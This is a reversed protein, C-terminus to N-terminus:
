RAYLLKVIFWDRPIYHRGSTYLTCLDIITMIFNPSLIAFRIDPNGGSNCSNTKHMKNWISKGRMGRKTSYPIVSATLSLDKVNAVDIYAIAMAIEDRLLSNKPQPIKMVM